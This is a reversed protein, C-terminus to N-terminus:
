AQVAKRDAPPSKAAAAELAQRAAPTPELSANVLGREFLLNIVRRVPGYTSNTLAAVGHVTAPRGQEALHVLAHLVRLEDETIELEAM